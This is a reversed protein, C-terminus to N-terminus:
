KEETNETSFGDNKVERLLKIIRKRATRSLTPFKEVIELLLAEGSKPKDGEVFSIGMIKALGYVQEPELKFLLVLFENLQKTYQKLM